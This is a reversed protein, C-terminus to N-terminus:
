KKAAKTEPADSNFLILNLVIHFDVKEAGVVPKVIEEVTIEPKKQDDKKVAAGFDFSGGTNDKKKAKTVENKISLAGNKENICRIAQVTFLYKESDIIANIYKNISQRGGRLTISIPLVQYLEAKDKKASTAPSKASGKKDDAPAVAATEIPLKERYVRTIETIDCDLAQEALWNVAGLEYQLVGTAQQLAPATVYAEFGLNFGDSLRINQDKAKLKFDSVTKNLKLRFQEPDIPTLTQPEPIFPAYAAEIDKICAQYAELDAKRMTVVSQTPTQPKASASAIKDKATLYEENVASAEMNKMVAFSSLGIFALAGVGIVSAISKNDKIWTSM